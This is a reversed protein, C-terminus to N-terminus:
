IHGAQEQNWKWSIKFVFELLFNHKNKILMRGCILSQIMMRTILKTRLEWQHNGELVKTRAGRLRCIHEWPFWVTEASSAQWTFGVETPSSGAPPRVSGVDSCCHSLWPLPSTSATKLSHSPSVKNSWGYKIKHHWILGQIAKTNRVQKCIRNSLITKPISFYYFPSIFLNSTLQTFPCVALSHCPPSM